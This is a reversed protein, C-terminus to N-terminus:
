RWIKEWYKPQLTDRPSLLLTSAKRQAGDEENRYHDESYVNYCSIRYCLQSLFTQSPRGEDHPLSPRTSLMPHLIATNFGEVQSTIYQELAFFSSTM